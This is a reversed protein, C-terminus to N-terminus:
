HKISTGPPILGMEKALSFNFFLVRGNPRYRAQYDIYGDPSVDRWPHRGDIEQVERVHKRRGKTGKTNPVLWVTTLPPLDILGDVLDVTNGSGGYSEADTNIVVKYKQPHSAIVKRRFPPSIAVCVIERGTQPSRRVFAVINEM